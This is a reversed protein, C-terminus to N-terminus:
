KEEDTELWPLLGGLMESKDFTKVKAEAADRLAPDDWAGSILAIKQIRCSREKLRRVFDTGLMKPMQVDCVLAEAECEGDQCNRCTEHFFDHPNEFEVVSWGARTLCFSLFERFVPTDDFLLVRGKPPTDGKRSSQMDDMDGTYPSLASQAVLSDLLIWSFEFGDDQRRSGGESWSGTWIRRKSYSRRGLRSTPCRGRPDAKRLPGCNWGWTNAPRGATWTIAYCREIAEVEDMFQTVDRMVPSWDKQNVDVFALLAASDNWAYVHDHATLRPAMGAVLAFHQHKERM